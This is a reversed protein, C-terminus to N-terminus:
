RKRKVPHGPKSRENEYEAPLIPLIQQEIELDYACAIRAIHLGCIARLEGLAQWIRSELRWHHRHKPDNQTDTLFKRCSARMASISEGLVSSRSIRELDQTLRQRIEIISDMVYPGFEMDYPMYLARRDELFVLLQKAVDREDIPPTWSIGGIPTSIGTLRKALQKGKLKAERSKSM